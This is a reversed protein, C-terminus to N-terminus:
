AFALKIQEFEILKIDTIKRLIDRTSDTSCDDVVILEMEGVGSNKVFDIITSITNQENYCPIIVSLKM